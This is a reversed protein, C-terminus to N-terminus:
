IHLLWGSFTTSGQGLLFGKIARGFFDGGIRVNVRDGKHLRLVVIQSGFGDTHWLMDASALLRGKAEDNVAIETELSKHPKIQLSWSFVYTGEVPAKFIGQQSDFANGENVGVNDFQIIHGVTQASTWSTTKQAYFSVAPVAM